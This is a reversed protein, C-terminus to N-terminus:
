DNPRVGSQLSKLMKVASDLEQIKLIEIAASIEMELNDYKQKQVVNNNIFTLWPNKNCIRIIDEFSFHDEQLKDFIALLFMYDSETDLTARISTKPVGYSVKRIKFEDKSNLYIYPTVHELEYLEKANYYAKRLADYTFVEAGFGIPIDICTVYDSNTEQLERVLRDIIKFDVYPNDGTARIIIDLKHRNAAEYYRSLVNNESGRFCAVNIRSAIKELRNDSDNITTAIIVEEIVKSKKIRSVVWEIVSKDGLQKFIKRPLRSSDSRAQIICGIKM